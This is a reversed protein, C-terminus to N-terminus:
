NCSMSSFTEFIMLSFLWVIMDDVFRIGISRPHSDHKIRSLPNMFPDAPNEELSVRSVVIDGDEVRHIVYHFKRLIHRSNDHDKPEKTLSVAGENDFFIEM